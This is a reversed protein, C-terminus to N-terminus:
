RMSIRCGGPCGMLDASSLAPSLLSV